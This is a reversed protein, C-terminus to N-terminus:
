PTEDLGQVFDLIQAKSKANRSMLRAKEQGQEFFIFTPIGKVDFHAALDPEEDVNVMFFTYKAAFQEAIEQSGQKTRVCDPCWDAYFRVITKRSEPGIKEAFNITNLKELM